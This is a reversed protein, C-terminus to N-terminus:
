RSFRRRVLTKQNIYKGPMFLIQHSLGKLVDIHIEILVKWVTYSRLYLAGMVFVIYKLAPPFFILIRRSIEM